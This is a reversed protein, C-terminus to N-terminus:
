LARFSCINNISAKLMEENESEETIQQLMTLGEDVTEDLMYPLHRVTDDGDIPTSKLVYYPTSEFKIMWAPQNYDPHVTFIEIMVQGLLMLPFDKRAVGDFGLHRVGRSGKAREDIDISGEKLYTKDHFVHYFFDTPLSERNLLTEHFIMDVFNLVMARKIGQNYRKEVYMRWCRFMSAAFKSEDDVGLLSACFGVFASETEDYRKVSEIMM